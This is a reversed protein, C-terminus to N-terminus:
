ANCKGGMGERAYIYRNKMRPIMKVDANVVDSRTVAFFNNFITNCSDTTDKGM